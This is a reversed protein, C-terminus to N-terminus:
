ERGHAGNPLGAGAEVFGHCIAYHTLEVASHLGLKEFLHTRYSEVAKLGIGMKSAIEKTRYGRAILSMTEIERPSLARLGPASREIQGCLETLGRSRFHRHGRLMELALIFEAREENQLLGGRVRAHYIRSLAYHSTTAAYVLAETRPLSQRLRNALALGDLPETHYAMIVLAPQCQFAKTVAECGDAATACVEWEAGLAAIWGLLGDRTAPHPEVVLIKTATM